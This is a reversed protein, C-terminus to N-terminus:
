QLIYPAVDIGGLFYLSRKAASGTQSREEIELKLIACAFPRIGGRFIELELFYPFFLNQVHPVQAFPPLRGEGNPPPPYGCTLRSQFRAQHSRM